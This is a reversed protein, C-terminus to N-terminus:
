FEVSYRDQNRYLKSYCAEIVESDYLANHKKGEIPRDIFAERSIDPDIGFMKFATAIDYFIYDVNKPLNLASGDGLLDNLLVGDYSLTDGWFEVHNFQSIWEQLAKRIWGTERKYAELGSTIRTSSKTFEPFLSNALVNDNIWDDVQSRDYDTFEAYFQKGNAATIGLSIPTTDKHLGTFEFDFFLKM